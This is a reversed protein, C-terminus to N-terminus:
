LHICIYINIYSYIEIYLCVHVNFDYTLKSIFIYTYMLMARKGLAECFLTANWERYIYVYIYINIYSYIEIHLCVHVNFYYTLKSIFIYTYM